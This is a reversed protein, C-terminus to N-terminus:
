PIIEADSIEATNEPKKRNLLDNRLKLFQDENMEHKVEHKVTEEIKKGFDKQNLKEMLKLRMEAKCKRLTVEAISKPDDLPNDTAELIDDIFGYTQFERAIKYAKM